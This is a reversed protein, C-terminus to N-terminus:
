ARFYLRYLAQEVRAPIPRPGWYLRHVLRGRAGLESEAALESARAYLAPHKARLRRYASRYRRRDEGVKSGGHKRYEVTVADVLEGRWGHELADLWLEWDEFHLFEEDFGGTVEFVERRALASLGITHRYLLAYPDYPPFQLVGGWEGFFRMRGYAFGLRADAELPARLLRLADPLLRDDADLVLAFATDVRALGANRAACVGRNEQRVVEVDSPLREIVEVTAPETSGDDVVVIRPAGDDQGLASEVAEVLYHGYNFCSIVVTVDDNGRSSDRDTAV